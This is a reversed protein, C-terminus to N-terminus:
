ENKISLQVNSIVKLVEAESLLDGYDNAYNLKVVNETTVRCLEFQSPEARAGLFITLQM